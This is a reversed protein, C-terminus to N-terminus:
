AFFFIFTPMTVLYIKGARGVSKRDIEHKVFHAKSAAHVTRAISIMKGSARRRDRAGNEMAIRRVKGVGRTSARSCAIRVQLETRTDRTRRLMASAAAADVLGARAIRPGVLEFINWYRRPPSPAPSLVRVFHSSYFRRGRGGRGGPPPPPLLFGKAVVVRLAGMQMGGAFGRVPLLSSRPLIPCHLFIRGILKPHM